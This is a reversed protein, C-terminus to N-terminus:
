GLLSNIAAQCDVSSWEETCNFEHTPFFEDAIQIICKSNLWDYTVGIIEANTIKVGIAEADVLFIEIESSYTICEGYKTSCIVYKTDSTSNYQEILAFHKPQLKLLQM